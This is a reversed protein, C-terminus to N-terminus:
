IRSKEMLLEGKYMYAKLNKVSEGLRTSQSGVKIISNVHAISCTIVSDRGTCVTTEAGSPSGLEYIRVGGAANVTGGRVVSGRSEVIVSGSCSLDSNYCGKGRIQIDGSTSLSSNQVYDAIINSPELLQERLSEVRGRALREHAKLVEYNEILDIGGAYYKILSAGDRISDADLHERNSSLIERVASIRQKLHSYKTDILLKVIQGDKISKPVKGTEKLTGAAFYVQSLDQAIDELVKILEIKLLDIFGAKVTSGIINKYITVHSGATISGNSVSEYVAVRNGATVKFGETVSGKITIDGTFEINGTSMDIDSSVEHAEFVSVINNRVDPRGRVSSYATMGDSSLRAGKGAALKLRKGPKQHISKGTVDFGPKGEEGRKLQAVIQGPEVSIVRGISRFDIRNNVEVFGASQNEEYKIEIIDDEGDIPSQGRAIVAPEGSGSDLARSLEENIIGFVVGGDSLLKKAEDITYKPCKIKDGLKDSLTAHFVPPMDKLMRQEGETYSVTVSAENRDESISVDFRGAPQRDKLEVRIGSGERVRKSDKIEIDDVFLRVGGSPSIEAEEGRGSPNKVILRGASVQVTGNKDIDLKKMDLMDSTKENNM